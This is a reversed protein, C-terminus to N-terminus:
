RRKGSEFSGPLMLWELRDARGSGNKGVRSKSTKYFNSRSLKEKAIRADKAAEGGKDIVENLAKLKAFYDTAEYKNQRNALRKKQKNMQKKNQEAM